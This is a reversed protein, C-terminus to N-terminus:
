TPIPRWPQYTGARLNVRHAWWLDRDPLPDFRVGQVVRRQGRTLPHATMGAALWARAWPMKKLAGHEGPRPNAWFQPRLARDPLGSSAPGRTGPPRGLPVHRRLEDLTFERAGALSDLVCFLPFYKRGNTPPLPLRAHFLDPGAAAPLAHIVHATANYSWAGRSAFRTDFALAADHSVKLLWAAVPPEGGGKTRRLRDSHAPALTDALLGTGNPTQWADLRRAVDAVRQRVEEAWLAQPPADIDLVARRVETFLAVPQVRSGWPNPWTWAALLRRDAQDLSALERLRQPAPLRTPDLWLTRMAHEADADTLFVGAHALADVHQDWLVDSAAVDMVTLMDDPPMVGEYCHNLPKEKRSCAVAM